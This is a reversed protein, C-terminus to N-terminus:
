SIIRVLNATDEEPEFIQSRFNCSELVWYVYALIPKGAM